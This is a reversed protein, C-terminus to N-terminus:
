RHGGASGCEARVPMVPCREGSYAGGAKGDADCALLWFLRHQIYGPDRLAHGRSRLFVDLAAKRQELDALASYALSMNNRHRRYVAQFETLVGVPAASALRLWMEMDGSHPLEHRYGGLHKQLETRVVATPTPVINRAGAREIFDTGTLISSGIKRDKFDAVPRPVRTNDDFLEIAAGFTLGIEPHADM